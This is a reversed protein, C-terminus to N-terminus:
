KSLAAAGNRPFAYAVIPLLPANSGEGRVLLIGPLACQKREHASLFGPIFRFTYSCHPTGVVPLAM